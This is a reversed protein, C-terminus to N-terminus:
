LLRRLRASEDSYVKLEVELEEIKTLKVHRKLKAMDEEMEAREDM